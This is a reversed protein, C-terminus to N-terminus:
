SIKTIVLDITDETLMFDLTAVGFVISEGAALTFEYPLEEIWEDNFYVDANEEGEAAALTYTGAESATFTVMTQEPYFNTVVVDISNDGLVLENVTEKKTLTLDIYDETETMVNAATSVLFTFSEGAELTFEYPLEIWESGYMDEIYVDANEEGDAASLVYTGAETATFTMEVTNAFYNEITVYVSNEGLVLKNENAKKTLLLDVYDETETMVNAATSVLFTFSEGAELTFEYPLEIWESGYMDEIYVDANEEGDAASLVYTGAETATFTMEVTNAFYNEITVYVSNEGLVLENENAKKTLLLDVYDETETMVNAATSVLFTFSEGAELTFEYPLEIWESGYMDEIYVDANEEGDAASLVYTGAATATFTMEVTNAFYNEITVYVSNEGLVLENENAKKTIVFDVYDETETMVDALTSVYITYSEGAELTFEYPFNEIWEPGYEGEFYLDANQEGDAITIVYTGSETAEFVTEIMEPWYNEIPVYVSNEGLVLEQVDSEAAVLTISVTAPDDVLLVIELAGYYVITDNPNIPEDWSLISVVSSDFDLSYESYWEIGNIYLTYVNGPTLEVTNDGVEVSVEYVVSECSVVVDADTGDVTAVVFGCIEGGAVTIEKENVYVIENTEPDVFGLKGNEGVTIKFTVDDYSDVNSVFASVGTGNASITTDGESAVPNGLYSVNVVEDIDQESYNNVYYTVTEGEALAKTIASVGVYSMWDYEADWDNIISYNATCGILYSGAKTATFTIKTYYGVLVDIDNDGEVIIVDAPIAVNYSFEFVTETYGDVNVVFEIYEDGEEVNVFCGYALTDNWSLSDIDSGVWYLGPTAPAAIKITTAFSPIVYGEGSQESFVIEDVAVVSYDVDLTDANSMSFYELDLTIEGAEDAVIQYVRATDSEASNGFYAGTDNSLVYYTGAAPVNFTVTGYTFKWELVDTLTVTGSAVESAFVKKEASVTVAADASVAAVKFTYVKTGNEVTPEGVVEAGTATLVYKDSVTATFTADTGEKVTVTNNSLTVVEDATVSVTYLKYIVYNCVDCVGDEGADIHAAVDSKQDKHECSAAHWHETENSSWESAFTHQHNNKALLISCSTFCLLFIVCVLVLLSIKKM